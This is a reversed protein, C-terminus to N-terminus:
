ESATEELYDSRIPWCNGYLELNSDIWVQSVNDANGYAVFGGVQAGDHINALRYEPGFTRQCLNHGDKQSKITNGSIPDSFKVDGASWSHDLNIPDNYLTKPLSYGRDAFCAVPLEAECVTDGKYVSCHNEREATNCFVSVLDTDVKEVLFTVGKGQEPEICVAFGIVDVMTDDSIYIDLPKQADRVYDLVTNYPRPFPTKDTSYRQPFHLQNLDAHLVEDKLTWGPNNSPNSFAYNVSASLMHGQNLQGISVVDNRLTSLLRLRIVIIGHAINSPLDISELFASDQGGVDYGRDVDISDKSGTRNQQYVKFQGPTNIETGALSFGDEEGGLIIQKTEAVRCSYANLADAVPTLSQSKTSIEPAEPARMDSIVFM